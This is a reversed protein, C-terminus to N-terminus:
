LNLLKGRKKLKCLFSYNRNICANSSSFINRKDIHGFIYFPEAIVKGDKNLVLCYSDVKSIRATHLVLTM